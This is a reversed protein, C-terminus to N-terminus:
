GGTSEQSRMNWTISRLGPGLEGSELRAGYCNAALVKATVVLCDALGCREIDLSNM